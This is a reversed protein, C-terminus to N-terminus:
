LISLTVCFIKVLLLLQRWYKCYGLVYIFLIHFISSSCATSEILISEEGAETCKFDDATEPAPGPSLIWCGSCCLSSRVSESAGLGVRGSGPRCVYFICQDLTSFVSSSCFVPQINVYLCNPPTHDSPCVPLGFVHHFHLLIIEANFMKLGLPLSFISEVGTQGSAEDVYM